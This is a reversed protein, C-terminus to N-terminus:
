PRVASILAGLGHEIRDRLGTSTSRSRHPFRAILRGALQQPLDTVVTFVTDGSQWSAILPLGAQVYVPSGGYSEEAFTQLDSPDLSGRQEFLSITSVGDTYDAHLVGTSTDVEQVGVLRFDHLLRGPYTWGKDDLASTVTRPLRTAPPGSVAAPLNSMAAGRLTHFSTYGSWRVLQGGLYLARRVLLGTEDDIWFRARLHGHESADVVTTRRGDIQRSPGMTVDYAAILADLCQTDLGAVSSGATGVFTRSSEGVSGGGSEDMTEISTGQDPVHEVQLTVADVTDGVYSRVVRTGRFAHDAPAAVAQHLLEVARPDDGRQAAGLMAGARGGTASRRGRPTRVTATTLSTSDATPDAFPAAGGSEAFEAAFERVPPAVERVGTAEPAGVVYAIALVVASMSGLSILMRRLVALRDVADAVESVVRLSAVTALLDFSLIAPALRNIRQKLELTEAIESRCQACSRAHELARARARESLEGDVLASVKHHLHNM